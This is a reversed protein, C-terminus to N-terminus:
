VEQYSYLGKIIHQMERLWNLLIEILIDQRIKGFFM